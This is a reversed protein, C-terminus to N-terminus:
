IREYGLIDEPAFEWISTSATNGNLFCQFLQVGARGLLDEVRGAYLAPVPSSKYLKRIGNSEMIGSTQLLLDETASFFGLDLPIEESSLNHSDKAAQLPCLICQFFLQPCVFWM